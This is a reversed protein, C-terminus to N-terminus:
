VVFGNDNIKISIQGPDVGGTKLGIGPAYVANVLRLVFLGKILENGSQAIQKGDLLIM